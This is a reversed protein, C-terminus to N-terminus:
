ELLLVSTMEHFKLEDEILEFVTTYQHIKDDYEHSTFLRSSEDIWVRGPYYYGIEGVLMVRQDTLTQITAYDSSAYQFAADDYMMSKINEEWDAGDTFLLFYFDSAHKLNTVEIYWSRAIGSFERFFNLGASFFPLGTAKYSQEIETTDVSRNPYWGAYEMVQRIRSPKDGTLEVRTNLIM